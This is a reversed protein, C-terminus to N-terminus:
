DGAASASGPGRAGVWASRGVAAIVVVAVAIALLLRVASDAGSPPREASRPPPEAAGPAAPAAVAVQEPAAGVLESSAAPPLAGGVGLNAGSSALRQLVAADPDLFRAVLPMPGAGNARREARQAFAYDLLKRNDEYWTDPAVGDLTVAIMTAGDERAVQMLCYGATDDYGTKAGVLDDWRNLMKHTNVLRYGGAGIEENEASIAEVFRPYRLAYRTFAAIDYVSSYHDPVGWGDPNVLNTDTLGMDRVRANVRAMYRGVAQEATDGEEAGLARAVAKAADNGSPVMMGFVLDRLTFTENPGFGVQTADWEVLDAETTTIEFDGPAEEIAEIATFIKTLSALPAREHMGRQAYVEGTDADVVIYRASVIGLDPEAGPATAADQAFARGPPAALLLLLALLPLVARPRAPLRDHVTM